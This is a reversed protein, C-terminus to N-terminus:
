LACATTVSCCIMMEASIVVCDGSKPCSSGITVAASPSSSCAPTVSRGRVIERVGAVPVLVLDLTEEGVAKM